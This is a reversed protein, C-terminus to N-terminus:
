AGYLVVDVRGAVGSAKESIATGIDLDGSGSTGIKDANIWSINDGLSVTDADKVEVSVVGKNYFAVLEGAVGDTTPILGYGMGAADVPIGAEVDVPTVVEVIDSKHKYEVIGM